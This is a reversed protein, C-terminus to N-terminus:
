GRWCWTSQRAPWVEAQGKPWAFVPDGHQDARLLDRGRSRAHCVSATQMGWMHTKVTNHSVYLASGIERQSLGSPLLRLVTLERETLEERGGRIGRCWTIPLLVIAISVM